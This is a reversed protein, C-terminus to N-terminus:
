HTLESGVTAVMLASPTIVPRSSPDTVILACSLPTVADAETSTRRPDVDDRVTAGSFAEIRGPSLRCSVAEASSSLPRMTLPTTGFHDDEFGDIAVTESAPRTVPTAFPSAIMVACDFLLFAVADTFTSPTGAAVTPTDNPLPVSDTPCVVCAVAVTFSACPLTRVPRVMAQCLELGASAATSELPRTVATAFPDTVMLAMQSAFIPLADSVMLAGTGADIAMRGDLTESVTPWFVCSCASTRSAFPTAMGFWVILHALAFLATAGTVADPATLAAAIPLM